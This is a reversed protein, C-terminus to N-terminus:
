YNEPKITITSTKNDLQLDSNPVESVILQQGVAINPYQQLILKLGESQKPKVWRDDDPMVMLEQGTNCAVIKFYKSLVASVKIPEMSNNTFSGYIRFGYKSYIPNGIGFRGINKVYFFKDEPSFFVDYKKFKNKIYKNKAKKEAKLQDDIYDWKDEFWNATKHPYCWSGNMENFAWYYNWQPDALIKVQKGKKLQKKEALYQHGVGEKGWRVKRITINKTLIVTRFKGSRDDKKFWYSYSKYNSASVSQVQIVALSSGLLVISLLSLLKKKM